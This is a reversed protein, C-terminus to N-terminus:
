SLVTQVSHWAVQVQSLRSMGKLTAIQERSLTDWITVTGDLIMPAIMSGDPSFSLGMVPRDGFEIPKGSQQRNHPDWFYLESARNNYGASALISGDPSFAVSSVNLGRTSQLEAMYPQSEINWLIIKGDFGVSWIMKSDASFDLDYVGSGHVKLPQGLQQRSQMNWLNVTGDLGGAALVRGDRSFKLSIIWSSASEVGLPGGIQRFSKTDWFVITNDPRGVALITGDPSFAINNMTSFNTSITSYVYEGLPEGIQQRTETNWLTVTGRDDGVALMGGAPSLSINYRFGVRGIGLLDGM